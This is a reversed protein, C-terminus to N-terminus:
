TGSNEPKAAVAIAERRLSACALSTNVASQDQRRPRGVGSLATARRPAGRRGSPGCPRRRRAHRRDRVRECPGISTLTTRNRAGRDAAGDRGLRRAGLVHQQEPVRRARRALRLAGDVGVGPEQDLDCGLHRVLEVHAAAVHEEPEGVHAPHHSRQARETRMREAGRQQQVFTRGVSGSGPRTHAAPRVGCLTVISPTDGVSIRASFDCPSSTGAPWRGTM